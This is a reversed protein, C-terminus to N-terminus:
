FDLNNGAIMHKWLPISDSRTEWDLFEDDLYKDKSITSM